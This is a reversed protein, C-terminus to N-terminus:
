LHAPHGAAPGGERMAHRESISKHAVASGLLFLFVLDAPFLCRLRHQMRDCLWTGLSSIAQNHLHRVRYEM